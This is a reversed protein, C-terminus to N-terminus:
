INLEKSCVKRVPCHEPPHFSMSAAQGASVVRVPLRNRHMSSITVPYFNGDDTPGVLLKDSEKITGRAVTGGAVIGVGSVSYM